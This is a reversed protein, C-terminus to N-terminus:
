TQVQGQQKSANRGMEVYSFAYSLTCWICTSVSVSVAAGVAGFDRVLLWALVMNFLAGVAISLINKGICNAMTLYLGAPGTAVNVISAFALLWFVERNQYFETYSEIFWPSEIALALVMCAVISLASGVMMCNRFLTKLETHRSSYLLLSFKPAFHYNVVLLPFTIVLCIQMYFRLVGAVSASDLWFTIVTTLEGTALRLLAMLYLAGGAGWFAAKVNPVPDEVHSAVRRWVLGGLIIAALILAIAYSFLGPNSVEVGLYLILFFALLALLPRLVQEVFQGQVPKGTARLASSLFTISALSVVGVMLLEIPVSLRWSDPMFFHYALGTLFTLGVSIVLLLVLPRAVDETRGHRWLIPLEKLILNQGGFQVVIALVITISIFVSVSGFEDLSLFSSYVLLLCLSLVRGLVMLVAVAVVNKSM